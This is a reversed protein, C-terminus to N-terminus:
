KEEHTRWYKWLDKFCRGRYNSDYRRNDQIYKKCMKRAISRVYIRRPPAKPRLEKLFSLDGDYTAEYEIDNMKIAEPIDTDSNVDLTLDKITEIQTTNGEKDIMYLNNNNIM